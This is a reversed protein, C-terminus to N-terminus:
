VLLKMFNRKRRFREKLEAVYRAQEAESRLTAMHAILKAAQEYAPSGSGNVFQDVREAYTELAQRPHTAESAQALTEKVNMSAGHKHVAQWAAEFSKDQTLIRVLLDAPHSWSTPKENVLRAELFTLAHQRAAEGGLKRLRTYLDLSPVKEFARWLHTEADGSRGAKSLLGAAFLIFPEDPRGDEFVRLGEEAWRLAEQERGESFCFEALQRYSWPSSLDKARLAVRANVDGDREAFFDLIQKLQHYDGAYDYTGRAEATRPPLKEWEETALRRYEALGQEGLVDGYLAAAGDFVAHDSGTERAFLDRALQTPQPRVVRAAALHIDRARDLLDGCHGDSDDVEEIAQEIRDIAREALGLALHARGGSVLDAVADLVADVDAAWSSVERYDVYGSVRTAGDIERRLRAMVARDDAHVAAAAMDLRRFLAPDREAIGVIMGVLTEVDQEKLYDRIRSLADLGEAQADSGAANAAMAVEVMHKRVGPAEFAPCSCERGIEKDHGTLEIRSDEMGEVQASV